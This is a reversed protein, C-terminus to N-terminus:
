ADAVAKGPSGIGTSRVIFAETAVVYPAACSTLAGGESHAGIPTSLSLNNTDLHGRRRLPTIRAQTTSNLHKTVRTVDCYIFSLVKM